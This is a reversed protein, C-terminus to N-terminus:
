RDWLGAFALIPSGDAATFLHPQKGDV